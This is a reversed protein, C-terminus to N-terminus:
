TTERLFKIALQLDEWATKKMAPNRLLYTPHFVPLVKPAFGHTSGAGPYDFFKGRFESIDGSNHLVANTAFSGLTILLKPKLLAIQQQLFPSCKDREEPEPNRNQPPHCKLLNTTYVDSRRFGMAEIMKTLLQGAPGVLPKGEADEEPGPAEGVFMLTAQHSGSGFVVKDRTSGLACARCKAAKAELEVWEQDPAPLKVRPIDDTFGLVQLYDDFDSEAKMSNEEARSIELQRQEDVPNRDAWM